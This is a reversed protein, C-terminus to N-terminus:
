ISTQIDATEFSTIIDKPTLVGGSFLAKFAEEVTLNTDVVAEENTFILFGTTPNPTTPIFVSILRKENNYQTAGTVFGISKTGERPFDIIVVRKFAQRGPLTVAHIIQKVSSYINKIVPTKTLLNEFYDIIAKGVFNAAFIGIFYLAVFTLILGFFTIIFEDLTTRPAAVGHFQLMRKIIPALTGGIFSFLFKVVFFTVYVPLILLLGTLIRKRVDKKFQVFVGNKEKKM